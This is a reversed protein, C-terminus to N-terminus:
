LPEKLLLMLPRLRLELASLEQKLANVERILDHIRRQEFTEEAQTTVETDFNVRVVSPYNTLRYVGNVGKDIAMGRTRLESIRGSFGGYTTPGYLLNVAGLSILGNFKLYDEMWDLLKRKTM